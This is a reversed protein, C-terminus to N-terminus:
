FRMSVTAGYMRPIGFAVLDMGFPARIQNGDVAYQRNLVNTAWFSIDYNGDKNSISARLNAIAYGNQSLHELNYVTFYTKSQFRVDGGISGEWPGGLSSKYDLSATSTLRPANVLRNGTLDNGCGARFPVSPDVAGTGGDCFSGYQGHLYGLTLRAQLGRAPIATVEARGGYIKASAANALVSTSNVFISM